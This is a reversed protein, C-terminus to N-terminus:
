EPAIGPWGLGRADGSPGLELVCGAARLQTITVGTRKLWADMTGAPVWLTRGTTRLEWGGPSESVGLIPESM